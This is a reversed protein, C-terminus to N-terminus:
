EGNKVRGDSLVERIFNNNPSHEMIVLFRINQLRSTLQQRLLAPIIDNYLLFTIEISALHAVCSM